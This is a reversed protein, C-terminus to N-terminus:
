VWESNGTLPDREFNDHSAEYKRYSSFLTHHINLLRITRDKIWSNDNIWELYNRVISMPDPLLQYLSPDAFNKRQSKEIDEYMALLAEVLQIKASLDVPRFLRKAPLYCSDNFFKSKDTDCFYTYIIKRPSDKIIQNNTASRGNNSRNGDYKGELVKIYNTDNAFLWDFDAKWGQRNEGILFPTSVTKKFLEIFVKIPVEGEKQIEDWRSKIKQKRKSTLKIIRPLIPGCIENYLKQIKEFPVSNTTTTTEPSGKPNESSSGKPNKSSSEKSNKSNSEKSNKIPGFKGYVSTSRLRLYETSPPVGYVSTCRLRLYETSPFNPRRNKDPSKKTRKFIQGTLVMDIIQKKREAEEENWAYLFLSVGGFKGGNSQAQPYDILEAKKLAILYPRLTDRSIGSYTSLTKTFSIIERGEGFDSEMECLALYIARLNKFDKKSFNKRFFRTVRKDAWLHAVNRHRKKELHGNKM